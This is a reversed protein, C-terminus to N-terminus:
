VGRPAPAASGSYEPVRAVLEAIDPHAEFRRRHIAEIEEAVAPDPSDTVDFSVFKDVLPLGYRDIALHAPHNMMEEYEELSAFSSVAGFDFNGGVDRGFVGPRASNVQSGAEAMRGLAKQVQEPTVDPRVSMRIVHYIVPKEQTTDHHAEPSPHPLPSTREDTPPRPQGPARRTMGVAFSLVVALAALASAGFFAATFDIDGGGAEAGAGALGIALGALAALGVAGGLQQAANVLGSLLGGEDDDSDRVAMAIAGVSGLGLGAGTLVFAGTHQWTFTTAPNLALWGIGTLLVTLSVPLARHLGLRAALWPAAGSGVIVMIAIPIQALGTELAGQGLLDQQYLPLFFFLGALTAGILVVVASALSVQTRRFVGLPVLPHPSRNEVVVFGVLALVGVVLAGVTAPATWGAEAATVLGLALASVGLTIALAGSLDFRGPRREAHPLVRWVLAAVLLGLPVPTWFVSRWGLLETLTGGLFVGFLSGAGAAAGWVGLSRTREAPTPYLALVLSLAAPIAVAAGVGQGIRGVILMPGNVALASFASAAVYGSMGLLFMRRGGLVDALRGGLLMLGALAVLYSNAVAALEAATLALGTRITSAALNVMASDLVIVFMSTALLGLATRRPLLAGPEATAVLM